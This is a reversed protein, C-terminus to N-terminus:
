LLFILISFVHIDIPVSRYGCIGIRRGRAPVPRCWQGSACAAPWRWHVACTGWRKGRNTLNQAELRAVNELIYSERGQIGIFRRAFNLATLKISPPSIQLWVCECVCVCMFLCYVIYWCRALRFTHSVLIFWKLASVRNVALCCPCIFLSFRDCTTEVPEKATFLFLVFSFGALKPKDPFCGKFYLFFYLFQRIIASEKM